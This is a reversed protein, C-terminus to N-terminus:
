KSNVRYYRRSGNGLDQLRHVSSTATVSQLKTWDALNESTELEYSRGATVPFEVEVLNEEATRISTFAVPIPPEAQAKRVSDIAARFTEVPFTTQGYGLQSYLLEWQRHSPSNAVGNIIAFIPQGGSAFRRAVTRNFDELVLNLGARNVFNQTQAEQGSQLNVGVHVVEIGDPNGNRAEYYTDIGELLQPAAAQCFPCWWAFWDLLVIRGAFDSLSVPQRTARDILAFDEVVEGAQYIQAYGPQALALALGAALKLSQKLFATKM